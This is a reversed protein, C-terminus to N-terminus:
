LRTKKEKKTEPSYKKLLKFLAAAGNKDLTKSFQHITPPV